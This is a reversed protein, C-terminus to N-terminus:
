QKLKRITIEIVGLRIKFKLYNIEQSYFTNKYTNVYLNTQELITLILYIYEKYKELTKNFILIDNLYVM